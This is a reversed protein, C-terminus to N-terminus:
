GILNAVSKFQHHLLVRLRLRDYRKFGFANRKIVKTQNNLGEIFGNSYGFAFSNLIEPQWNQLTQIAKEFEELGADKVQTYFQYLGEKVEKMNDKGIKKAEEFWTRYSEKLGYATRLDESLGLYRELYWHQKASLAEYHKYFVHKMRKCKKRDYPHFEKQVRRRVRELAWYIYRCFHFRDAIIIPNGLAQQVASKFSHSMDMIVIEVKEGKEQLYKKVTKVSRDPLIDLPEGTEGNGIITQYKGKNTDGKYEDIAIVRPLAKVERLKGASVNDFRRMATNSSTHFQAATDKFNKGKIVRFGLAQNWEVTHRQYRYVINNNEVFRKGCECRYRRKRYFIYTRREFLKLHQIKQVRYDHIRETIEGCSPCKHPKKPLQVHIHFSGEIEETKTIKMEELGPLKMNFYMYM